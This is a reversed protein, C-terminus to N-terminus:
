LTNSLRAQGNEQRGQDHTIEHNEVEEQSEQEVAEVTLFEFGSLLYHMECM